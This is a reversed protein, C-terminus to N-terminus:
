HFRRYDLRHLLIGNRRDKKYRCEPMRATRASKQMKAGSKANKGSLSNLVFGSEHCSLAAKQPIECWLINGAFRVGSGM